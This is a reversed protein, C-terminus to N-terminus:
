RIAAELAQEFTPIGHRVKYAYLKEFLQLTFGIHPSAALRLPQAGNITFTLDPM